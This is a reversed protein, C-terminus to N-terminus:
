KCPPRMSSRHEDKGPACDFNQGLLLPSGPRDADQGCSIAESFHRQQGSLRSARRQDREEVALHNLNLPLRHGNQQAFVGSEGLRQAFGYNGSSRGHFHVKGVSRYVSVVLLCRGRLFAEQPSKPLKELQLPSPILAIALNHLM